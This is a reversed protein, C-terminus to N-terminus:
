IDPFYRLVEGSYGYHLADVNFDGLLLILDKESVKVSKLM